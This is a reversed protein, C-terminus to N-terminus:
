KWWIFGQSGELRRLFPRARWLGGWVPFELRYRNRAGLSGWGPRESQDLQQYLNTLTALLVKYPRRPLTRTSLPKKEEIRHSLCFSSLAVPSRM